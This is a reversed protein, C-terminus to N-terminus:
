NLEDETKILTLSVAEKMHKAPMPKLHSKWDESIMAAKALKSELKNFQSIPERVHEVIGMKTQIRSVPSQKSIESLLKEITQFRSDTTYSNFVFGSQTLQNHSINAGTLLWNKANAHGAILSLQAIGGTSPMIGIKTHDFSIECSRHAVRIDCATAFESAINHCGQGLDVLIVQPLHMLSTNIKQLKSNFSELKNITLNELIAPDIGSSLQDNRSQFIISHIEVKGTCWALISELEFLFESTFYPIKFIVWLTRTSKELRVDFTQYNFLSSM